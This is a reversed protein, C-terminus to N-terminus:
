QKPLTIEFETSEEDSKKLKLQGSQEELTKKCISLGLGSGTTKTTFGEEFIKTQVDKNLPSGNNSVSIKVSDEEVNTKINIEGAQFEDISEVANKILNILVASFKDEDVFIKATTEIEGKIQINKGSAYVQALEVASKTLEKLDHTKFSNNNLSKLDILSNSAIKLSKQICNVANTLSKEVGEETQLKDLQKQIISSYLDCISLQNRIEHAVFRSKNTIFEFEETNEKEMESIMIEQNTENLIEVVKRISSNLTDNDRRDPHNKEQYNSLEQKSDPIANSNIIEFAAALNKSNHLLYFDAFSKISCEEYDFIFVAGFREALVYVFETKDWIKESLVNKFVDNIPENSFDYVKAKSFELRKLVGNFDRKSKDELRVLVLSESSNELIPEVISRFLGKVTQENCPKNEQIYILNKLENKKYM